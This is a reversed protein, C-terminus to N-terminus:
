TLNELPWLVSLGWLGVPFHWLGSCSSLQLMLSELCFVTSDPAQVPPYALGLLLVPTICLLAGLAEASNVATLANVNRTGTRSTKAKWSHQYGLSCLYIFESSFKKVVSIDEKSNHKFIYAMDQCWSEMIHDLHIQLWNLSGLEPAALCYQWPAM